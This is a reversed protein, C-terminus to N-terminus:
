KKAKKKKTKKKSKAKISPKNYSVEKNKEIEELIDPKDKLVERLKTIRVSLVEEAEDTSLYQLVQNPSYTNSTGQYMYIEKDGAQITEADIDTMFNKIYDDVEQKAKKIIKEDLDLKERLEWLKEIDTEFLFDPMEYPTDILEMYASCEEKCECWACYQNKTQVPSDDQEIKKFLTLLYKRTTEADLWTRTSYVTTDKRLYNLGVIVNEVYPFMSRIALNYGSLQLDEDLENQTKAVFSTKYDIIMLTNEDPQLIKDIYGRFIYKGEEAAQLALEKSEYAEGTELNIFFELELAPEGNNLKFIEYEFNRPNNLFDTIIKVGQKYYGYSSLNPNKLMEENLINIATDIDVFGEYERFIRELVSHIISGFDLHDAEARMGEEYTKHYKFPCDIYVQGRSVSM